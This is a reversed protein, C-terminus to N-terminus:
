RAGDQACSPTRSAHQLWRPPDHVCRPALMPWRPADQRWKPADQRWCPGDQRWRPAAQCWCPGDQGWRPADQARRPALMPWRPWWKPLMKLNRSGDQISTAEPVGGICFVNYFVPLFVVKLFGGAVQLTRGPVEGRWVEGMSITDQPAVRGVVDQAHMRFSRM